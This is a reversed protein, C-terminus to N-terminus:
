EKKKAKEEIDKLNESIREKVKAQRKKADDVFSDFQEKNQRNREDRAEKGKKLAAKTPLPLFPPFGPFAPAEDPLSDIFSEQMKSTGDFFIDWQKRTADISSMQMDRLQEGIKKANSKFSEWKEDRVEDNSWEWVPVFPAPVFYFSQTKSESKKTVM